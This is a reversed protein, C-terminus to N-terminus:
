ENEFPSSENNQLLHYKTSETQRKATSLCNIRFHSCMQQVVCVAYHIHAVTLVLALVRLTQLEFSSAGPLLLLFLAVLSFLVVFGNFLECRTKSMQCIILRCSINSFITGITYYYVRPDQSIIDARSLFAWGLSAVFLHSLPAFPRIIETFTLHRGNESKCTQYVNYLPLPMTLFVGAYLIFEFIKSYPGLFLFNDKWIKYSQWYTLLSCVILFLQSIDYSWPLYLVGTIYKEWHTFYFTFFVSWFVFLMRHPGFSWDDRGFLSYVSLPVFLATWSDVGHDMLEGLPGTCKTRRAQKGDIGDLTHALFLNIACLLWIFPPIPSYQPHSDSSAYFNYDYIVLLMANTITCAFGALTLLNPAVSMPVFEVASNWFPHMVYKSLPSTDISAYKYTELRKLQEQDLYKYNFIM